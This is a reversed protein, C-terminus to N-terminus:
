VFRNIIKDTDEHVDKHIHLLALGMLRNQGM